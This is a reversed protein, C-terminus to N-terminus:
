RFKEFELSASYEQAILHFTLADGEAGLVPGVFSNWIAIFLRILLGFFIIKM